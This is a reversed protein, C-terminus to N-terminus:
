SALQIGVKQIVAANNNGERKLLQAFEAPSMVLPANDNSRLLEKIDDQALQHQIAKTLQEIVAPPTKAPAMFGFTSILNAEPVGLEALTKVDPQNQARQPGTTALLRLTGKQLLGNTTGAPNDLFLDFHGAAADNILQAGGKYPVHTLKVGTKAQIQEIMIHGVSGVGNTAIRISEPKAKSLRIVDDWSNGAFSPTALVYVPSYMVPTVPAIASLHDYQLKMLYPALTLPSIASLIVTYGDPTARAVEAMGVTGSAGPRNDVVLSQGLDKALKECLRRGIMDTIGGAGYPVVVRIPKNPYAAQAYAPVTGLVSATGAACATLFHRRQM